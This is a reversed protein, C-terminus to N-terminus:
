RSLKPEHTARTSPGAFGLMASPRRRENRMVTVTYRCVREKVWAGAPGPVILRRPTDDAHVLQMLGRHRGLSICQGAYGLSLPEVDTGRIRALITDAAHGGLPVAAACSM